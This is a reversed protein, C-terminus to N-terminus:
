LFMLSGHSRKLNQWFCFGLSRPSETVNKSFYVSLSGLIREFEKLFLFSSFGLFPEFNKLVFCSIRLYEKVNKFFCALPGRLIKWIRESIFCWSTLGGFIRKYKRLFLVGVTGSIKEFETLFLVLPGRLNQWM